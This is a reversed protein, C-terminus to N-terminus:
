ATTLLDGKRVLASDHVVHRELLRKERVEMVGEGQILFVKKAGPSVVEVPQGHEKSQAVRLTRPVSPSGPGPRVLMDAPLRLAAGRLTGIIVLGDVEPTVRTFEIEIVAVGEALPRDELPNAVSQAASGQSPVESPSGPDSKKSRGFLPM